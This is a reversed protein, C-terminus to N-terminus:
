DTWYTDWPGEPHYYHHWIPTKPDDPKYQMPTITIEVPRSLATYFTKNHVTILRVRTVGEEIGQFVVEGPNEGPGMRCLLNQYEITADICRDHNEDHKVKLTLLQGVPVTMKESCRLICSPISRQRQNAVRGAILHDDLTKGLKLCEQQNMVPDCDVIDVYSTDRAFRLRGYGGIAYSGIGATHVPTPLTLKPVHCYGNLSGRYFAVAESTKDCHLIEITFLRSSTESARVLYDLCCHPGMLSMRLEIKVPKLRPVSTEIIKKLAEESFDANGIYKGSSKETTIRTQQFLEEVYSDERSLSGSSSSEPNEM